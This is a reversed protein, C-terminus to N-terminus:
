GDFQAIHSSLVHMTGEKRCNRELTPTVETNMRADSWGLESTTLVQAAAAAGSVYKLRLAPFGKV